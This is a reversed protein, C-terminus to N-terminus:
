QLRNLLEGTMLHNIHLRDLFSKTILKQLSIIKKKIYVILINKFPFIINKEQHDLVFKIKQLLFIDKQSNLFTM